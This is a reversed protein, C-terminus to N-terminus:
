IYDATYVSVLIFLPLSFSGAMDERIFYQVHNSIQFTHILDVYSDKLFRCQKYITMITIQLTHSTRYEHCCNGPAESSLRRLLFCMGYNGCKSTLRAM